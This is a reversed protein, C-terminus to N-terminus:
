HFRFIGIAAAASIETIYFMFDPFSFVTNRPEGTNIVIISFRFSKNDGHLIRDGSKGHPQVVAQQRFRVNNCAARLNYIFPFFGHDDVLGSGHTEVERVSFPFQDMKVAPVTHLSLRFPHCHRVADHFDCRRSSHARVLMVREHDQGSLPCCLVGSLADADHQHIGSIVHRLNFFVLELM